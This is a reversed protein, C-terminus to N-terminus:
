GRWERIKKMVDSVRRRSVYEKTSDKFIVEITGTISSDFSEVYNLNIICSNSIRIFNKDLIEELEYLKEKIKFKGNKTKCFNSKEESYFETIEKIDLIYIRNERTALIQKKSSTVKMVTNAIQQIEETMEPAKIIVEINKHEKSIDTAVNINM